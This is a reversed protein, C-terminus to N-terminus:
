HVRGIREKGRWISIRVETDRMPVQLNAECSGLPGQLPVCSEASIEPIDRFGLELCVRYIRFEMREGMGNVVGYGLELGVETM